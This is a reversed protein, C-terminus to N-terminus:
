EYSDDLENETPAYMLVERGVSSWLIMTNGDEVKEATWIIQMCMWVAYSILLLTGLWTRVKSFIILRVVPTINSFVDSLTTPKEQFHIPEM